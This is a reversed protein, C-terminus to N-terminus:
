LKAKSNVAKLAARCIALMPTDAFGLWAMEQKPYPSFQARWVTAGGVDLFDELYIGLNQRQMRMIVRWAAAIDTSHRDAMIYESHPTGHRVFSRVSVIADPGACGGTIARQEAESYIKQGMVKEAILANMELGAPIADIEAETM